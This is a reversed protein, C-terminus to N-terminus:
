MDDMTLERKTSGPIRLDLGLNAMYTLVTAKSGETFNEPLSFNGCYAGKASYVVFNEFPQAKKDVVSTGAEARNAKAQAMLEDVTMETPNKM